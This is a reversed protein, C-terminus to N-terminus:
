IVEYIEEPFFFDNIRMFDFQFSIHIIMWYTDCESVSLVYQLPLKIFM